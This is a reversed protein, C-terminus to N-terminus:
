NLCSNNYMIKITEIETLEKLIKIINSKMVIIVDSQNM